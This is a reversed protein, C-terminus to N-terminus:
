FAPSAWFCTSFSTGRDGPVSFGGGCSFPGATRLPSRQALERSGAVGPQQGHETREERAERHLRRHGALARPSARTVPNQGPNVDHRLQM